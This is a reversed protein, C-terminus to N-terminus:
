EAFIYKDDGYGGNYPEVTGAKKKMCHSDDRRWRGKIHALNKDLSQSFGCGSNFIEFPFSVDERPFSPM